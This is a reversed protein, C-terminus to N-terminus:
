AARRRRAVERHLAAVRRRMRHQSSKAVYGSRYRGPGDRIVRGRSVESRLADSVVKGSRSAFTFGAHEVGQVLEAVTLPRGAALLRLVLMSRLWRGPAVPVGGVFRVPVWEDEVDGM